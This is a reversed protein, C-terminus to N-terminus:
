NSRKFSSHVIPGELLLMIDRVDNKCKSLISFITDLLRFYEGIKEDAHDICVYM